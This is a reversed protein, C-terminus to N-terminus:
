IYTELTDLSEKLFNEMSRRREERRAEYEMKDHDPTPEKVSDASEKMKDSDDFSRKATMGSERKNDKRDSMKDSVWQNSRQILNKRSEQEIRFVTIFFQM